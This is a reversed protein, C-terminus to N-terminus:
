TCGGQGCLTAFSCYGCAPAIALRGGRLGAEIDTGDAAPAVLVGRRLEERREALAVLAGDLTDNPTATGVERVGPLATGAPALLEQSQLTFYGIQPATGSARGHLHAYIALQLASGNELKDHITSRGWKLDLVADPNAIILDATGGVALDGITGALAHEVAHVSAGAHELLVGLERASEVISHRVTSRELQYRPLGLTECLEGLQADVLENARAMAAAAGLTGGAFVQALVRHSLSGYLMPSPERPGSSLGDRLRGHYHLAWRLSCGLLSELSSPSEEDRLRLQSAVIQIRPSPTPLPRPEVVRRAVGPLQSRELVAAQQVHPMAARLEDWLPHPFCREGGDSTLPCVLTLAETALELPRRWRTAEAEMQRGLDPAEVGHELLRSREAAALRFRSPVPASDRTFDWWVIRRAPGLLAGPNGVAALGAQAIARPGHTRDLEDCLTRLAVLSLARAGCGGVLRRAEEALVAIAVLSPVSSIRGRAWTAVVALRRDIEAVALQADRAVAAPLLAALRTRVDDRWADDCRALGAELAEHWLPSRRSPLADLAGILRNAVRRPVPGPDLCLLAHLDGPVMPEFAAELVLRVLTTSAPPGGATGLCPLGHRTLAADLTADGGIVVVGDLSPLAALSAAIEDAAALVGHSRLLIVGGDGAPQFPTCRANALDGNAPAPPPASEVVQVDVERLLAFVQRWLLPLAAIPSMTTISALGLERGPLARVIARLREAIGPPADCTATWLAALRPGADEGQWGGLALLDRDRLLRRATGIPDNGYSESWWGPRGALQAALTIAREGPSAEIGGLGLELELRDLLRLPGLWVEDVVADRGVLPGPWAGGDIAPDWIVTLGDGM